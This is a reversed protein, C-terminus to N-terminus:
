DNWNLLYTRNYAEFKTKDGLYTLYSKIAIDFLDIFDTVYSKIVFKSNGASYTIKYYSDKIKSIKIGKKLLFDKYTGKFDLTKNGFNWWYITIKEQEADKFEM